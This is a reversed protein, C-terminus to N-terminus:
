KTEGEYRIRAAGYGDDHGADYGAKYQSSYTISEHATFWAACADGWAENADHWADRAAELEVWRDFAARANAMAAAQYGKLEKM